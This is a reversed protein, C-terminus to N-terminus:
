ELGMETYNGAAGTRAKDVVPPDDRRDMEWCWENPGQERYVGGAEEIANKNLFGWGFSQRYGRREYEM